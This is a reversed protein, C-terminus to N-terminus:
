ATAGKAAAAGRGSGSSSGSGSGSSPAPKSKGGHLYTNYQLAFGVVSFITILVGLVWPDDTMMTRLGKSMSPVHLGIALVGCIVLMAGEIATIVMVVARFTVFALMGLVALGILAGIWGSGALDPRSMYKIIHPWSYYGAFSGALGGVVAITYRLAPLVMVTLMLGGVLMGALATNPGVFRAALHAGALGGFFAANAIVLARFVQWGFVLLLLGGALMTISWGVGFTSLHKDLLEATAPLQGTFLRHLLDTVETPIKSIYSAELM